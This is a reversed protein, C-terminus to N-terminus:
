YIYLIIFSFQKFIDSLLKEQLIGQHQYYSPLGPAKTMSSFNAPSSAPEPQAQAQVLPLSFKLSYQEGVNLKLKQKFEIFHKLITDQLLSTYADQCQFCQFQAHQRQLNSNVDDNSKAFYCASHDNTLVHPNAKIKGNEM